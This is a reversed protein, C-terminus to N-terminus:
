TPLLTETTEATNELSKGESEPVSCDETAAEVYRELRRQEAACELWWHDATELRKLTELTRKAAEYRGTLRYVSALMLHAQCDRSDLELCTALAAESEELQGALYHRQAVPFQDPEEVVARPHLLAALGSVSRAVLMFWVVVGIWCAVRILSPSLWEPYMFRAVILFNLCGAFMLAAPFGAWRGRYWLEPLGPWLCVLYRTADM